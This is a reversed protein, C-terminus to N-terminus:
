LRYSMGWASEIGERSDVFSAAQAVSLRHDILYPSEIKLNKPFCWGMKWLPQVMEYNQWCLALTGTEGPHRVKHSFQSFFFFWYCLPIWSPCVPLHRAQPREAFGGSYGSVPDSPLSGLAPRCTMWPCHGSHAYCQVDPQIRCAGLGVDQSGARLGQEVFSSVGQGAQGSVGCAM